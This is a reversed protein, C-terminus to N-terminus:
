WGDAVGQAGGAAGAVAGGLGVRQGSPMTSQPLAAVLLGGVVELLGQGQEALGAVPGALGARQVVEAEDVHLLAAVLLGGAM